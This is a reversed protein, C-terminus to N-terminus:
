AKEGAIAQLEALVAAAETEEAGRLARLADLEALMAKNILHPEAVEESMAKRLKGNIERLEANVQRMRQMGDDLAALRERQDTVRTELHTIKGDQREKLRRVREELQANAVREEELRARLAEIEEQAATDVVTEVAAEPEPPPEPAPDPVPASAAPTLGEVGARIRDLARTIRAELENVDDM